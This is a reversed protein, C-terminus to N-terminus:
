ELSGVADIRQHAGAAVALEAGDRGDVVRRERLLDKKMEAAAGLRQRACPRAVWGALLVEVEVCGSRQPAWSSRASASTDRWALRKAGSRAAERLTDREWGEAPAVRM